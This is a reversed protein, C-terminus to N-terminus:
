EDFMNDFSNNEEEVPKANAISDLRNIEAQSMVEISATDSTFFLDISSGLQVKAGAYFNPNQKYIRAKDSDNKTECNEFVVGGINLSKDILNRIAENLNQGILYPMKIRENSMGKGVVLSISAGKRLPTGPTLIIGNYRQELVCGSCIDPRYEISDIKFGIVELTSNAQRLSLNVLDPASVKPATRSSITLYIKRGTKVPQFPEPDQKLVRSVTSNEDYVSDIIIGKLNEASLVSDVENLELNILKPVEIKEGHDTYSDMWANLAFLGITVAVIAIILNVLFTKSKLFALLEKM